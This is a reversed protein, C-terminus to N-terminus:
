PTYSSVNGSNSAGNATFDYTYAQAIASTQIGTPSGVGVECTDLWLKGTDGASNGNLYAAAATATSICGLMWTYCGGVDAVGQAGNGVYTGNVRVMTSGDHSTSAQDAAKSGNDRSTVGVEIGIADYGYSLGDDGCNYCTCDIAISVGSNSYQWWGDASCNFAICDRTIYTPATVLDTVFFAKASGEMTLREAYFRGGDPNSYELKNIFNDYVKVDSDPVRSDSTRVYVTTGTIYYSGPNADVLAISARSTLLLEDGFANATAADAVHLNTSTVGTVTAKYTSGTELSWSLGAWIPASHAQGTGQPVICFHVNNAAVSHVGFSLERTKYNGSAPKLLIKGGYNGAQMAKTLSQFPATKTGENTDLGTSPDCYIVGCHSQEDLASIFGDYSTRFTSGDVYVQFDSPLAVPPTWGPPRARVAFVADPVTAVANEQLIEYTLKHEYTYDNSMSLSLTLATTPLGTFFAYYRPGSNVSYSVIAEGTSHLIDYVIDLADGDGWEDNGTAYSTGGVGVVAKIVYGSSAQVRLLTKTTGDDLCIGVNSNANNDFVSTANVQHRIRTRGASFALGTSFIWEIGTTANLTPTILAYGSPFTKTLSPATGNTLNTAVLPLGSMTVVVQDAVAFSITRVIPPDVGNDAQVTLLHSTATGYNLTNELLLRSTDTDLVFKSDPDSLISYTYTGTGNVVFFRSVLDGAAAGESVSTSTAQIFARPTQLSHINQRLHRLMSM